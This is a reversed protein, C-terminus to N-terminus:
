NLFEVGWFNKIREIKAIEGGWFNPKLSQRIQPRCQEGQHFFYVCKRHYLDFLTM